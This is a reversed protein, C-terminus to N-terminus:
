KQISMKNTIAMTKQCAIEDHLIFVFINFGIRLVNLSLSNLWSTFNVNCNVPIDM